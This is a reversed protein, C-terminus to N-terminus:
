NHEWENVTEIYSEAKIGAKISANRLEELKNLDLDLDFIGLEKRFLDRNKERILTRLGAPIAERKTRAGIAQMAEHLLQDAILVTLIM